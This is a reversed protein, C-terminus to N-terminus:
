QGAAGGFPVTSSVYIIVCSWLAVRQPNCYVRESCSPGCGVRANLLQSASLAWFCAWVTRFLDVGVFGLRFWRGGGQM